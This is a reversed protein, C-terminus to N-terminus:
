PCGGDQQIARIASTMVMFGSNNIKPKDATNWTSLDSQIDALKQCADTVKPVEFKSLASVLKNYVSDACRGGGECSGTYAADKFGETSVTGSAVAANADCADLFLSGGEFVSCAGPETGGGPVPKGASAMGATALMASCVVAVAAGKWAAQVATAKAGIQKVTM